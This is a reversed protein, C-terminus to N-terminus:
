IGRGADLVACYKRNAARTEGLGKFICRQRRDRFETRGTIAVAVRRLERAQEYDLHLPKL